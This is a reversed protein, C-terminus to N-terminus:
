CQSRGLPFSDIMLVLVELQRLLFGGNIGMQSIYGDYQWGLYQDEPAMRNPYTNFLNNAGLTLTLNPVFAYSVALDTTAKAPEEFHDFVTTSFTNPGEYITVEDSAPGYIHEHLAIGWSAIQWNAGVIVKYKPTTSTLWADEQANTVPAGTADTAVRLLQTDNINASISWDVVGYSQFDTRYSAAIDAGRTRTDAANQLYNTSIYTATSPLVIGGATLAAAAAAGEAYGSDILRNRVVVQYVDVTANLNEIPNLVIGLNINTSEEPKLPTAGM